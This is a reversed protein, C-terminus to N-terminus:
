KRKGILAESVRGANVNMEVAIEQHSKDPHAEKYDRIQQATRKTMKKHKPATREVGKRRKLEEVLELIRDGYVKHGIASLEKAIDTLEARVEKTKM